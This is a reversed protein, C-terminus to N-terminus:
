GRPGAPVPYSVGGMPYVVARQPGEGLIAEAAAVAEGVDAFLRLGPFRVGLEALKPSVMLLHNRYTSQLALRVFFSADGAFRPVARCFLSHLADPGLLRIGRRTWEPSIPWNPIRMGAAGVPCRALCIVVGGPRAAWLTNPICKFSQWLDHDRPHANAILVDAPAQPVVGCAVACQKAMMRHVPRVEGAALYAPYEQEDLLYQVAFSRGHHADILEGAADIARRMPNREPPLGVLQRFRRGLGLRHLYRITELSACGPLLMKYGGGFGAQLHPSAGSIIIRLDAEAVGRDIRIDVGDLRGVSVYGGSPGEWPNSRWRLTGAYDGLKGVAQEDTMPPHMGTAFVVEAQAPDCGAHRLERLIPQLIMELPSNRTVDEVILAIRGKRRAALLKGLPAGADPNSLARGLRNPWDDPASRLSPSATQELSWADPLSLSLSEPGWPVSVEPM